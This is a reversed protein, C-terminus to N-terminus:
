CRSGRDRRRDAASTTRRCPPRDPKPRGARQSNRWLKRTTDDPPTKNGTSTKNGPSRRGRRFVPSKCASARNNEQEACSCLPTCIASITQSIRTRVRKPDRTEFFGRYKGQYVPPGQAAPRGSIVGAAEHAVHGQFGVGRRALRRPPPAKGDDGMGVGALRREGFM